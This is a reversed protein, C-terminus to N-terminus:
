LYNLFLEEGINIDSIIEFYSINSGVDIKLHKINPNKSSNLFSAFGIHMCVRSGIYPYIYDKVISGKDVELVDCQLITGKTIKETAFVGKGHINSQKIIVM